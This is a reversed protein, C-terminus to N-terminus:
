TRPTPRCTIFYMEDIDTVVYKTVIHYTYEPIIVAYPNLHSAAMGAAATASMAASSFYNTSDRGSSAMSNGFGSLRSYASHHAAEAAAGSEQVGVNTFIQPLKHTVDLDSPVKISFHIRTDHFITPAGLTSAPLPTGPYRLHTAPVALGLRPLPAAAPELWVHALRGHLVAGPTLQTIEEHDLYIKRVKSSPPAPYLPAVHHENYTAPAPAAAPSPSPSGSFGPYTAEQMSSRPGSRSLSFMTMVPTGFGCSDYHEIKVSM